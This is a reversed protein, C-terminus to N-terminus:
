RTKKYKVSEKQVILSFIVRSSFFMTLCYNLELCFSLNRVVVSLNIVHKAVFCLYFRIKSVACLTLYRGSSVVSVIIDFDFIHYFYVKYKCTHLWQHISLPKGDIM